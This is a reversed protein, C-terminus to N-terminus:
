YQQLMEYSLATQMLLKVVLQSINYACEMTGSTSQFINSLILAREKYVKQSTDFTSIM